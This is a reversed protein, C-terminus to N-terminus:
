RAAWSLASRAVALAVVVAAAVAHARLLLALDASEVTNMSGSIQVRGGGIEGRIVPATVVEGKGKEILVRKEFSIHSSATRGDIRRDFVNRATFVLRREAPPAHMM